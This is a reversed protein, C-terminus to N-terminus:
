SFTDDCKRKASARPKAYAAEAPLRFSICLMEKRPAVDRVRHIKIINEVPIKCGLHLEARKHVDGELNGIDTSFCHSHIVPLSAPPIVTEKGHFLGYFVDLFELANAPLNMVYHNFAFFRPLAVPAAEYKESASELESRKKGGKKVRDTTPAPTLAGMEARIERLNFDILSQRVFDRGDLNYARILHSLKNIKINESLWKFSEPNLDNAYVTCQKNKAAPLSFPGVGAMVDCVTDNKSFFQSVIRNHETQLCSNWYVRSFDFKFKCNSERLEALMDDDGALVEMKFFRFTHDISDTKNVVTRVYSNKELIIEGIIKKFPLYENRLNMHAIHGILEFSSPVNPLEDPIVSRIVQDATWYEYGLRVPFSDLVKLNHTTAFDVVTQPLSDLRVENNLLVIKTDKSDGDSVICRMRPIDLLHPPLLQIAKSCLAHPVRLAVVSLTRTFLAAKADSSLAAISALGKNAPPLLNAVTLSTAM